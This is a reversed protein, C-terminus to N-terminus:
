RTTSWTANLGGVFDLDVYGKLDITSGGFYLCKRSTGRLYILIWKVTNWHEIGLHNMYRSVVGVAHAIDMRTCVMVNMLIGVVLAYPVKSM